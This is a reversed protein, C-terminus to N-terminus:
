DGLFKLSGLRYAMLCKNPYNQEIFFREWGFLCPYPLWSGVPHLKGFHPSCITFYAQGVWGVIALTMAIWVGGGLMLLMIFLLLGGIELLGM